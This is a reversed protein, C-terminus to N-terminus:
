LRWLDGEDERIECEAKLSELVLDNRDAPSLGPDVWMAHFHSAKIDDPHVSDEDEDESIRKLCGEVFGEVYDPDQEYRFIFVLLDYGCDFGMAHMHERRTEASDDIARELMRHLRMQLENRDGHEGAIREKSMGAREEEPLDYLRKRRSYGRANDLANGTLFSYHMLDLCCFLLLRPEPLVAWPVEPEGPMIDDRDGLGLERVLSLLEVYSPGGERGPTREPALESLRAHAEEIRAVAEARGEREGQDGFLNDMAEAAHLLNAQQYAAVVEREITNLGPVNEYDM